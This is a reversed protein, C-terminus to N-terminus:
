GIGDDLPLVSVTYFIGERWSPRYTTYAKEQLLGYWGQLFLSITLMVIGATYEAVYNAHNSATSSSKTGSTTAITVGITVMCVSM